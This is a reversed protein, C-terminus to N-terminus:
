IDGVVDEQACRALQVFVTYFFEKVREVFRPVYVLALIFPVVTTRALTKEGLLLLALVFDTWDM